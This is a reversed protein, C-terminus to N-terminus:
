YWVAEKIGWLLVLMAIFGQEQQDCFRAYCQINVRKQGASKYIRIMQIPGNGTNPTELLRKQKLQM